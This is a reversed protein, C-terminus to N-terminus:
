FYNYSFFKLHLQLQDFFRYNIWSQIINNYYVNDLLTTEEDGGTIVPVYCCM